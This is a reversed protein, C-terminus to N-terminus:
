SLFRKKVANAVAQPTFGFHKALDEAPASAGFHDIGVLLADTAAIGLIGPWLTTSGAEIVVVKSSSPLLEKRYEISTNLFLQTCPMSVVRVSVSSDLLKAAEIALSVESGTAVFVIQAKANEQCRKWIIYGGKKIKERASNLDSRELAPVEQRTLSLACPGERRSLAIEYCVATEVADAPRLLYLNHILRLASLHEIPQHTPGDEGLFVSDHTFIFLGPLHSLAALRIAPRMYDSFCLFTSGYPLFGGYYSLGNMIAGMAHERVGFHINLGSFDNKAISGSGKIVTLTSPELDASGGILAGIEGSALQLINGSTKRTAAPKSDSSVSQLFKEGLSEPVDLSLQRTLAAALDANNESWRKFGDRWSAVVENLEGIRASFLKRVEEPVFFRPELPWGLGEKTKLVENAGLPSGHVGASNAKNPSGRGIVTRMAIISPKNSEAVANEIASDIALFDHGDAAQVHWGYAEYRRLVNETFALDTNGAISIHNDDYLVILNGLGLHGALSSAESSIGEMLCGDGVVCFVRHNFPSFDATNYRAAMIKEGIAMGVANSVGQGLPGTTCEVGATVHSEPHGPTLSGWQRFKRLDEVSLSIGFLHLLSYLLMSGHGNSLVFRDRNIWKTDGPCFCLHRLWLVVAVEAFGMPMGPHGSSAAEVGDVSLMKISNSALVLEDERMSGRKM